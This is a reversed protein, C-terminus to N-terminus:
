ICVVSLFNGLRFAVSAPSLSKREGCVQAIVSRYHFQGLTQPQRSLRRPEAVGGLERAPDTDLRDSDISGLGAVVRRSQVNSAPPSGFGPHREVPKHGPLPVGGESGGAGSDHTDM